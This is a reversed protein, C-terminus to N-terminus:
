KWCLYIAVPILLAVVLSVWAIRRVTATVSDVSRETEIATVMLAAISGRIASLERNIGALVDICLAHAETSHDETSIDKKLM